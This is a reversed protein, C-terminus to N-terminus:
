GIVVFKCGLLFFFFVLITDLDLILKDYMTLELNLVQKIREKRKVHNHNITTPYTTTPYM